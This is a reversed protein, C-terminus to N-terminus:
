ADHDKRVFQYRKTGDGLTTVDMTGEELPMINVTVEARLTLDLGGLAFLDVKVTAIEGVASRIEVARSLNAIDVGAVELSAPGTGIASESKFRVPVDKTM